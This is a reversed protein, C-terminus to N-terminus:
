WVEAPLLTMLKKYIGRATQTIATERDLAPPWPYNMGRLHAEIVPLLESMRPGSVDDHFREDIYPSQSRPVPRLPWLRTKEGFMERDLKVSTTAMWLFPWMFVISGGALLAYIWIANWGRVSDTRKM